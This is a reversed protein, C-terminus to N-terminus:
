PRPEQKKHVGLAKRVSKFMKMDDVKKFPKIKPHM